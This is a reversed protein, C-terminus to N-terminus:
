KRTRRQRRRRRRRRRISDESKQMVLETDARLQTKINKWVQLQAGSEGALVPGVNTM